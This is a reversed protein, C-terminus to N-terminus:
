DKGFKKVRELSSNWDAKVIQACSQVVMLTLGVVEMVLPVLISITEGILFKGKGTRWRSSFPKIVCTGDTVKDISSSLPPCERRYKSPSDRARLPNSQLLIKTRLPMMIMNM